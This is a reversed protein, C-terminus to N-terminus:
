RLRTEKPVSTVRVPRPPLSPKLLMSPRAAGGLRQQATPAARAQRLANM